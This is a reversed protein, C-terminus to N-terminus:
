FSAFTGKSLAKTAYATWIPEFGTISQSNVPGDLSRTLRDAGAGGDVTLHDARLYVMDMNDDGNGLYVYFDDLAQVERLKVTDNGDGTALVVHTGATVATMNVTDNGFGTYVDVRNYAVATNIDVFDNDNEYYSDYAQVTLNGRVSTWGNMRISDGGAGSFISLDDSADNGIAAHNIDVVDNGAGTKITMDGTTRTDSIFVADSDAAGGPQHMQVNVNRFSGGNLSLYDNAAGLNVTLDGTVTFDQYNLGNVKTVTGGANTLGQVRIKGNGLQSVQVAQAGQYSNGAEQILMNGGSVSVAVDGAMLERNELSEMHFRSHKGKASNKVM